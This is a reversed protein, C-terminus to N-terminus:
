YNGDIRKWRDIYRKSVGCCTLEWEPYDGVFPTGYGHKHYRVIFYEGKYEGLVVEGDEPYSYPIKHWSRESKNDSRTQTHKKAM